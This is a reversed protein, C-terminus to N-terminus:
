LMSKVFDEKLLERIQEMEIAFENHAVGAGMFQLDVIVFDKDVLAEDVDNGWLISWWDLLSMKRKKIYWEIERDNGNLEELLLYSWDEDGYSYIDSMKYDGTRGEWATIHEFRDEMLMQCLGDLDSVVDKLELVKMEECDITTAMMSSDFGKGPSFYQAYGDYSISIFKEDAYEVDCRHTGVHFRYEWGDDPYSDPPEMEMVKKRDDELLQNIKREKEKDRSGVMQLYVLKDVDYYEDKYTYTTEEFQFSLDSSKREWRVFCFICVIVSVAMVAATICWGKKAVKKM